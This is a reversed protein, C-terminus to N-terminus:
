FGMIKRILKVNEESNFNVGSINAIEKMITSSVGAPLKPILEKNFETGDKNYLALKLLEVEINTQPNRNAKTTANNWEISTLPRIMAGFEQGNYNIEIPVKEEIGNTILQELEYIELDNETINLNDLEQKKLEDINTM